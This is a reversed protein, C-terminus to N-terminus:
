SRPPFRWSRGAEGAPDGVASTVWLDTPGDRFVKLNVASTEFEGWARVIVAAEVTGESVQNGGLANAQAATGADHRFQVIRGVTVPNTM